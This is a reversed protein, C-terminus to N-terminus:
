QVEPAAKLDEVRVFTTLGPRIVVQVRRAAFGVPSVVVYRGPPLTVPTMFPNPHHTLYRGQEDYLFFASHRERGNEYGLLITEVILASPERGPTGTPEIAKQDPNWPAYEPPTVCGQALLIATVGLWLPLSSRRRRLARKM